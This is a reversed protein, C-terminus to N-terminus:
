RFYKINAVSSKPIGLAGSVKDLVFSSRRDHIYLPLVVFDSESRSSRTCSTRKCGSKLTESRAVKGLQLPPAPVRCHRESDMIM